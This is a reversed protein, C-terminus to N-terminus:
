TVGALRGGIYNYPPRVAAYISFSGLNERYKEKVVKAAPSLSCGPKQTPSVYLISNLDYRELNSYNSRPFKIYSM